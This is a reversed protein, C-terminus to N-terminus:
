TAKAENNSKMYNRKKKLHLLYLRLDVNALTQFNRLDNPIPLCVVHNEDKVNAYQNM